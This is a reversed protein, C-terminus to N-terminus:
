NTLTDSTVNSSEVIHANQEILFDQQAEEDEEQYLANMTKYISAFQKLPLREVNAPSFPLPADVFTGDLQRARRTLGGWGVIMRRLLALRIEGLQMQLTADKGEGELKSLKNQTAAWDGALMEAKIVVYQGPKFVQPATSNDLQITEFDEM